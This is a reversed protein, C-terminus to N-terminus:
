FCFYSLFDLLVLHTVIEPSWYIRIPVRNAYERGRDRIQGSRRKAAPRCSRSSGEDDDGARRLCAWFM